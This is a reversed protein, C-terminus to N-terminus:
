TLEMRASILVFNTHGLAKALINKVKKIEYKSEIHYYGRMGKTIILGDIHRQLVMNDKASANRLRYIHVKSESCGM